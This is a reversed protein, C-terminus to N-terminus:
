SQGDPAIPIPLRSIADEFTLGRRMRGYITSYRLGLEECAEVLSLNLGHVRVILNSRTNRAQQIPTAWRCNDPEYHGNTNERDLTMGLPREGMDALFNAFTMWRECIKIGRGGYERYHRQSPYSCRGIMSQWSHYTPTRHLGHVTSRERGWDRRYCGCSKTKGRTVGNAQLAVETGCECRFLWTRQRGLRGLDRLATLRHRKAGVRLSSGPYTQRTPSVDAESM